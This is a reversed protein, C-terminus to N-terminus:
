NCYQIMFFLLSITNYDVFCIVYEFMISICLIPDMFSDREFPHSKRVFINILKKNFGGFKVITNILTDNYMSIYRKVM